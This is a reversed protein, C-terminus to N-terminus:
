RTAQPAWRVQMSARVEGAVTLWARAADDAVQEQVLELSEHRGIESGYEVTWALAHAGVPVVDELAVVSVVNNVHGLLDIDAARVPWSRSTANSGPPPLVLRPSVRRDGASPGYVALFEDTVRAPRGRERDVLVWVTSVDVASGHAGSATVRREAWHSGVGSCWTAVELREYLHPPRRVRYEARRVVWAHGARGHVGSAHSDEYALDQVLAASSSPRM